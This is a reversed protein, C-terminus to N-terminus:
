HQLKVNKDIVKLEIIEDILETTSRRYFPPRIWIFFLVFTLILSISTDNQFTSFENFNSKVYINYIFIFLIDIIIIFLLYIPSVYKKVITNLKENKYTFHLKRDKSYYFMFMINSFLSLIILIQFIDFFNVVKNLYTGNVSIISFTFLLFVSILYVPIESIIKKLKNM